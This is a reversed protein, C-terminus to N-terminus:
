GLKNRAKARNKRGKQTKSLRRQLPKIQREDKRLFRPNHVKAGFSDTYFHSLGV